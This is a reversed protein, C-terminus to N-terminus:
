EGGGKGKTLPMANLVKNIFPMAQHPLAIAFGVMLLVVVLGVETLTVDGDMGVHGAMSVANFIVYAGAVFGFISRNRKKSRDSWEKPSAHADQEKPM